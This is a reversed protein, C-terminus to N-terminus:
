NCHVRVIECGTNMSSNNLTLDTSIIKKFTNGKQLDHGMPLQVFAEPFAEPWNGQVKYQHRYFFSMDYIFFFDSHVSFIALYRFVNELKATKIEKAFWGIQFFKLFGLAIKLLLSSRCSFRLKESFFIM